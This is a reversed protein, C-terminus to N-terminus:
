YPYTDVTSFVAAVVIIYYIIFGVSEAACGYLAYKGQISKGVKQYNDTYIAVYNQDKGMLTAPSPTPAILYGAGVGLLGFLCGAGFWLMKNTNTQAAITSATIPDGGSSTQQGGGILGSSNPSLAAFLMLVVGLLITTKKM